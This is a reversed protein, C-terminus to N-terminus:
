RFLEPLPCIELPEGPRDALGWWVHHGACRWLTRCARRGDDERGSLVFGGFRMPQNCEPCAPAEDTM